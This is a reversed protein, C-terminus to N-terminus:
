TLTWDPDPMAMPMVVGTLQQQRDAGTILFRIPKAKPEQKIRFHITSADVTKAAKVLKELLGPALQIVIDTEDPSPVIQRWDPFTEHAITLPGYTMERNGNGYVIARPPETDTELHITEPRKIGKAIHLLEAPTVAGTFGNTQVAATGLVFGDATVARGNEIHIKTLAPRTQDTSTFNALAKVVEHSVTQTEM